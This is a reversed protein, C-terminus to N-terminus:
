RLRPLFCALKVCCTYDHFEFRFPRFVISIYDYVFASVCEEYWSRM